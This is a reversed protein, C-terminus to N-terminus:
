RVVALGPRAGDDSIRWTERSFLDDGEAMLISTAVDEKMALYAAQEDRTGAGEQYLSVLEVFDPPFFEAYPFVACGSRRYTGEFYFRGSPAAPAAAPAGHPDVVLRGETQARTAMEFCDVIGPGAFGLRFRLDEREPPTEPSLTAFMWKLVRYSLAAAIINKRGTYKLLDDHGIILDCGHHRVRLM